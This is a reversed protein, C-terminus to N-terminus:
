DRHNTSFDQKPILFLCKKRQEQKHLGVFRSYERGYQKCEANLPPVNSERVQFGCDLDGGSDMFPVRQPENTMNPCAVGHIDLHKACENVLAHLEGRHRTSVQIDSHVRSSSNSIRPQEHWDGWDLAGVADKAVGCTPTAGILLSVALQQFFASLGMASAPYRALFGTCRSVCCCHFNAKLLQLKITCTNPRLLWRYARGSARTSSSLGAEKCTTKRERQQTNDDGPCDRQRETERAARKTNRPM